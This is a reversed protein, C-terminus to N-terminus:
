ESLSWRILPHPDFIHRFKAVINMYVKRKLNLEGIDKDNLNQDMYAGATLNQGMHIMNDNIANNSNELRM